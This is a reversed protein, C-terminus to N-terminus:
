EANRLNAFRVVTLMEGADGWRQPLHSGSYLDMMM